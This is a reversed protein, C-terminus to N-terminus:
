NITIFKITQTLSGSLLYDITFCASHCMNEKGIHENIVDILVEVCGGGVAKAKNEDVWKLTIQKCIAEAMPKAM